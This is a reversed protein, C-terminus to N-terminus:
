AAIGQRAAAVVPCILSANLAGGTEREVALALSPPWERSDRLQSLRGKSIGVAEALATLALANPSELYAALTMM